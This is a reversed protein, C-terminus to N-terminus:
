SYRRRASPLRCPRTAPAVPVPLVTVRCTRASPKERAPTATKAASTFPSREPILMGPSALGAKTRRALSSPDSVRRIIKRDDEPIEEALLAMLDPRRDAVHPRQQQRTQEFEVLDLFADEVDGEFDGVLAPKQEDIELIQARQQLMDAFGGRRQRRAVAIDRRGGYARDLPAKEHQFILARRLKKALRFEVDGIEQADVFIPAADDIEEGGLLQHARRPEIRRKKQPQKRFQEFFQGLDAIEVFWFEDEEEVLRMKQEVVRRLAQEVEIM